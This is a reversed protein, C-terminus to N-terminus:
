SWHPLRSAGLDESIHTSLLRSFPWTVKSASGLSFSASNPPWETSHGSPAHGRTNPMHTLNKSPAMGSSCSGMLNAPRLGEWSREAWVGWSQFKKEITFCHFFRCMGQYVSGLYEHIKMNQCFFFKTRPYVFITRANHACTNVETSVWTLYHYLM